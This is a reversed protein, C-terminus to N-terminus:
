NLVRYGRGALCNRIVRGRENVGDGAGRLVGSAAGVGAGQRATESNGVSAGIVAGAIAGAAASSTTKAAIDVQDAYQRCQELDAEYMAISIGQTDVIPENGTLKEVSTCGALFTLVFISSYRVGM